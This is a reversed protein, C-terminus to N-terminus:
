DMTNCGADLFISSAFLVSILLRLSPVFLAVCSSLLLALFIGHCDRLTELQLDLVMSVIIRESKVLFHWFTPSFLPCRLDVADISLSFFSCCRSPVFSSWLKCPVVFSTRTIGAFFIFFFCDIRLVVYSRWPHDAYWFAWFISSRYSFSSFTYDIDFFLDCLEFCCRSYCCCCWFLSAGVTRHSISKLIIFFCLSVCHHYWLM